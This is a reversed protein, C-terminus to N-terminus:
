PRAISLKKKLEESLEMFREKEPLLVLLHETWRLADKLAPDNDALVASFTNAAEYLYTAVENSYQKRFHEKEETFNEIKSSDQEGTLFPRMIEDFQQKDKKKISDLPIDMNTGVFHYGAKKALAADKVKIAHRLKYLSIGQLQKASLKDALMDLSQIAQQVQLLNGEKLGKGYADMLLSYLKPALKQQSDGDLSGYQNLLFLFASTRPSNIHKVMFDIEAPDSLEEPSKVEFYADFAESNDLGLAAKQQIYTELFSLDRSGETFQRELAALVPEKNKELADEAYAIFQRPHQYDVVRSLLVGEPTLYLYTPYAHVDYQSAIDTGEGQEANLKYNIFSANYIDGVEPLPLVERDMRKCPPCWDTYVDVFIPKNEEQALQLLAKWSGEFFQVGSDGNAKGFALSIATLCHLITTLLLTRM